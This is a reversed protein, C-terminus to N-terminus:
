QSLDFVTDLFDWNPRLTIEDKFYIVEEPQLKELYNGTDWIKNKNTDYIARIFVNVPQLGEFDIQTNGESYQSAVVEGKANTLEIIVPFEKVNRLTLSMTAYEKTAQTKLTYKLTDNATELYSQFAGPLATIAYSQSEERKFDFFIRQNREDYESTFAVDVSDKDFVRIKSNDITELPLSTGLTFRERPHITGSQLPSFSLTDKKQDKFRIAFERDFKDKKMAIKLSDTKLPQFWVQLSDKDPFKTLKIPLNETGNRLSIQVNDANGEYPVVLRNGSAQYPKQGKFSPIENFLQLDFVSDTPITIPQKRFAIKDQNPNFKFNNNYDKLAVLMYKGEKLNELSFTKLSDLTNTIYRPKENYITSDTYKENVEYLMVSVFNVVDKAIADKITGTVKLSDIYSGTSFVYKFQQYVNGENNDRISNGFNFSYTTNPQLTDKIRINIYKSANTPTVLPALEMPPSVILQKNVDKIKVYEDFTIRIEKVNFNTSYNEPSSSRLVPAITDKQGGTISGRKACGVMALAMIFFLFRASIKLM